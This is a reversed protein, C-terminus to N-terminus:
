RQGHLAFPMAADGVSITRLHTGDTAYVDLGMLPNTVALMPSDGSVFEISFAGSQTTIKSLVAETQINAVWIQNGGSKHSGYFGDEQMIVFLQDSGNNTAVQWGSPRRNAAIDADDVLSWSTLIKPRAESLDVPYVRGLYSVFYAISDVYTPKDFVPDQDADFFPPTSLRDTEQGDENFQISLMSGDGCLSSFGREGTPYIMSCGPTAIEGLLRRSHVDIVSVSSAPTYNFVLLYRDNDVLRMAFKNTVFLGRNNNPLVIEAQKDLTEKDYITVVDTREGTTGRSYFTEGVYLEPRTSSEVFTGFQAAGVAGKYEHSDAAVDIIAVKGAVLSTFNADHAFIWTSPYDQPLKQVNPIKEVPLEAFAGVAYLMLLVLSMKGM